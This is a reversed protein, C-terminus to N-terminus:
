NKKEETVEVELLQTAARKYGSNNSNNYGKNSYKNYKKSYNKYSNNYNTNSRHYGLYKNYSYNDYRKQGYSNNYYNKQYQWNDRRM